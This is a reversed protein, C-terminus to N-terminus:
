RPGGPLASRTPGFLLARLAARSRPRQWRLVHHLAAVGAFGATPLARHWKSFYRVRNVEQLAYLADSTGSGAGHHSVVAEPLFHIPTGAESLRRCYDTEESYLFFSEDWPGVTAVAATPVLLAAGTAWAVPGPSQYTGPSRIIESLVSPRRPWRDGLLADGFSGLISPERRLSHQLVGDDDIIAPVVARHAGASAAMAGLSGPTLLLDPNLFVTWRSPPAMSLGANIGGAYGLNDGAEVLEVEPHLAVVRQLDETVCNNVVIARWSLPGTAAPVTALLAAVQPASRYSVVILLCDIM